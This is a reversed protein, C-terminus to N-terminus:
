NFEYTGKCIYEASGIMYVGDEEIYVKLKGGPVIVNVRNGVFGLKNAIVASACNGTGCALTAGAGREWTRVRITDEDLVKCFNVNTREPFIDHHEIANGEEIDTEDEEFIVTHPINMLLSNIKYEKNNAKIVKGIVDEGQITCPISEPKFEPFGMNVKIELAKNNKDVTLSIRKIGAGTIVDFNKDKVLSNDYVYKAFCRIGNGCMAAYSGDSNIIVMEITENQKRVLLIGDAGVGYRRHCVKKALAGEQGKLENNLDEIVIFDNGNGHMKVFNM